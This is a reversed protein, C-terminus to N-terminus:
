ARQRLWRVLLLRMQGKLLCLLRRAPGRPREAGTEWWYIAQETVQLMRSFEKRTFPRRIKRIENPTLGVKQPM